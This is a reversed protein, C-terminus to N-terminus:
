LAVEMAGVVGSESTRRDNQMCRADRVDVADCTKRDLEVWMAVIPKGESFIPPGVRHAHIGISRFIREGALATFTILRTAGHKLAARVVEAFVVCFRRRAEERSLNWDPQAPQTSFRSLEWVEASAPPPTGHLLEPCIEALLYPQTTPLLRACGCIFGAEDKAVIYVTDFRDFRDRELGHECALDWGLREVFVGYRYAALRAEEGPHLEGWTGSSTTLM